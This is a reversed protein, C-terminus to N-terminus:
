HTRCRKRLFWLDASILPQAMYESLLQPWAACHSKPFEQSLQPKKSTGPDFGTTFSGCLCHNINNVKERLHGNHERGGVVHCRTVAQEYPHSEVRWDWWRQSVCVDCLPDCVFAWKNNGVSRGPHRWDVSSVDQLSHLDDRQCWRVEDFDKDTCTLWVAKVGHLLMNYSLWRVFNNNHLM